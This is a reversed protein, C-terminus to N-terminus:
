QKNLIENDEKMNYYCHKKNIFNILAIKYEEDSLKKNDYAVSDIRGNEKNRKIKKLSNHFSVHDEKKMVCLNSVNNNQRNFDIHHVVYDNSLYKKDNIMISNIDDLLFREAILRHEFVYKGRAFPHTPHYIKKYGWNTIFVGEKFSDNEYARIGYQHNNEGAMTIKKLKYCCEYSCTINKTEKIYSPKRHLPKHCVVCECNYNGTLLKHACNRSCCSHKNNKYRQKTTIFKEGCVECTTEFEWPLDDFNDPVEM